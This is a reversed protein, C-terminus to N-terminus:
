EHVDHCYVFSSSAGRQEVRRLGSELAHLRTDLYGAPAPVLGGPPAVIHKKQFVQLKTIYPIIQNAMTQVTNVIYEDFTSLNDKYKDYLVKIFALQEKDLMVDTM